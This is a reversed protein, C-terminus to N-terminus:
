ADIPRWTSCSTGVEDGDALLVLCARVAASTNVDVLCDFCTGIGCFLGRPAGLVRTTRWSTIGNVLLAGAITSGAPAELDHGDFRFHM